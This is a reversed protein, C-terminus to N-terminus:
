AATRRALRDWANIFTVLSPLDTGTLSYLERMQRLEDPTDVTLRVDPRALVPPVPLTTQTFLDGRRRVFTTVHERDFADRALLAARDLAQRTLGEVGAGYPLEDERVYDLGLRSMGSLLRAPAEIDVAPNDATARIVVDLSFAAACRAFRDLVDETAGRFVEIGADTGAAALADDDPLTTTALIVQAADSAVLRRICHEVLARGGIPELVKGRLRHSGTRAQLIIGARM